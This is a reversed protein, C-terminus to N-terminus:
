ELFEWELVTDQELDCKTQKGIVKDIDKPQIGNGPRKIELDAEGIISNKKLKKNVVISRRAEKRSNRECVFVKKEKTGSIRSIFDFNDIAKKFDIKDGSHYHDNGELTKDLTFHKELIEAGYAYATSLVLMDSDPVTHDSYGIKMMPFEKKLTLINCLNADEYKCPYSLVCHLLSIDMCNNKVLFDVAEKIEDMNSAGVSMIIPKNKQAIHKLLPFNTIDSSSIKYQEVMSELFDVSQHDFPTALFDINVKKCYDSLTRYDQENLNDFKKFLEYQSTTTEKTLDWYAPSFKSALKEAKYAQFKVADVGVEKAADIYMKAADILSIKKEQATDYFNVGLEAIFYPKQM